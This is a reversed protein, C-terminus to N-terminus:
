ATISLFIDSSGVSGDVSSSGVSGDVSSSEVSDDVSEGDEGLGLKCDDKTYDTYGACNVQALLRSQLIFM